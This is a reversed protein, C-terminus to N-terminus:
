IDLTRRTKAALSNIDKMLSPNDVIVGTLGRSIQIVLREHLDGSIDLTNELEREMFITHLVEHVLTDLLENPHQNTDAEMDIKITKDSCSARGLSGRLVKSGCQEITYVSTEVRIKKTKFM